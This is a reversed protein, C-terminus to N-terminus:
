NRESLQPQRKIIGNESDHKAQSHVVFAISEPTHAFNSLSLKQRFINIKTTSKGHIQLLFTLGLNLRTDLISLNLFQKKQSIHTASIYMKTRSKAMRIKSTTHM